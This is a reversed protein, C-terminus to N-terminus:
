SNIRSTNLRESLINKLEDFNCDMANTSISIPSGYRSYNMSMAKRKMINEQRNIYDEPNNLLIMLIKQRFIKESKIETIDKWLILGSSVGSSNDIIGTENIILAPRKDNMKKIFFYMGFPGFLVAIIAAANKIFVNNFMPNSTEPQKILMWIGICM